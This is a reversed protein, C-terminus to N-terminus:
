YYLTLKKDIKGRCTPCRTIYSSCRSCVMHGCPVFAITNEGDLCINCKPKAISNDNMTSDIAALRTKIEDKTESAKTESAKTEPAKTEPAKTEPAKTEPAKTEAAKIEVKTEQAVDRKCDDIFKQGVMSVTYDCTTTIYKAHEVWPNDGVTWDRM